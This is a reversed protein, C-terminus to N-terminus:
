VKNCASSYRKSKDYIWRKNFYGYKTFVVNPIEIYSMKLFDNIGNLNSIGDLKYPIRSYVIFKKDGVTVTGTLSGNPNIDPNPVKQCSMMFELLAIALVFCHRM